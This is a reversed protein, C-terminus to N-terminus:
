VFTLLGTCGVKYDCLSGGGMLCGRLGRKVAGM